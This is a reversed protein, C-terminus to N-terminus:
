KLKNMYERFVRHMDSYYYQATAPYVKAKLDFNVLGSIIIDHLNNIREPDASMSTYANYLDDEGAFAKEMQKKVGTALKRQKSEPWPAWLYKMIFADKMDQVPAVDGRVLGVHHRGASYQFSDFGLGVHMFRAYMSTTPDAPFLHSAIEKYVEPSLGELIAKNPDFIGYVSRQAVLPISGNLPISDDGVINVAPIKFYTAFPVNPFNLNHDVELRTLMGRLDSAVLFETTCLSVKWADPYANEYWMVEIDISVAEFKNNKTNVVRWTSPATRKIIEVSQDTSGYDILIAADFFRAHHRIWFPLLMEENLFHSVLVVKRHKSQSRSFNRDNLPGDVDGKVANRSVQAEVSSQMSELISLSTDQFRFSFTKEFKTSDLSCGKHDDSQGTFLIHAGTFSSVDAAATEETTAFSQMNFLSYRYQLLNCKDILTSVGRGLDQLGLVSHYKQPSRDVSLSGHSYAALLYPYYLMDLWHNTLPGNVKGLRLGVMVPPESSPADYLYELVVERQRMLATHRNYRGTHDSVADTEQHPIAGFGEAVESTSAFVFLQAETMKSAIVFPLLVVEQFIANDAASYDETTYSSSEGAVYIVVDFWKLEDDSISNDGSSIPHTTLILETDRIFCGTVSHLNRLLDFLYSGVYEDAGIVLIHKSQEQCHHNIILDNGIKRPTIPSGKFYMPINEVFLMKEAAMGVAWNKMAHHLNHCIKPHDLLQFFCYYYVDIEWNPAWDKEVNLNPLDPLSVSVIIDEAVFHNSTTTRVLVWLICLFQM